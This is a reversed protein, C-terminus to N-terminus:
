RPRQAGLDSYFAMLEGRLAFVVTSIREHDTTELAGWIGADILLWLSHRSVALWPGAHLTPLLDLALSRAATIGINPDLLLCRHRCISEALQRWFLVRAPLAMSEFLGVDQLTECPELRDGARLGIASLTDTVRYLARGNAGHRRRDYALLPLIERRLAETIEVWVECRSCAADYEEDTNLHWELHIGSVDFLQEGSAARCFCPRTGSAWTPFGVRECL